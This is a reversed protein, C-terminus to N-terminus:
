NSDYSNLIRLHEIARTKITRIFYLMGAIPLLCSYVGPSFGHGPINIWYLYANSLQNYDIRSSLPCLLVETYNNKFRLVGGLLRVREQIGILGLKNDGSLKSLDNLHLGKGNDWIELRISGIGFSL